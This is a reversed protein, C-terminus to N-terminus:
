EEENESFEVGAQALSARLMDLSLLACKLRAYSVEVGLNELIDDKTMQAL